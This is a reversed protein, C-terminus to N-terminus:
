FIDLYHGFIRLINFILSFNYLLIPEYNLQNTNLKFVLVKCFTVSMYSSERNIFVLNTKCATMKLACHYEEGRISM